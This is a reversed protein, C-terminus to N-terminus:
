ERERKVRWLNIKWSARDSGMCPSLLLSLSYFILPPSLNPSHHLLRKAKRKGRRIKIQCIMKM